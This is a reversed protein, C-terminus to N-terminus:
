RGINTQMFINHNCLQSLQDATLRIDEFAAEFQELTCPPACNAIDLQRPLSQEITNAYTGNKLFM